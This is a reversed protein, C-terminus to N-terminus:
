NKVPYRIFEDEGTKSNYRIYGILQSNSENMKRKLNNRQTREKLAQDRVLEQSCGKQDLRIETINNVGIFREFKRIITSSHPLPKKDSTELNNIIV